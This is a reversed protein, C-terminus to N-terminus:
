SFAAFFPVGINDKALGLAIDNLDHMATRAEKIKDNAKPMDGLEAEILYAERLAALATKIADVAPKVRKDTPDGVSIPRLYLEEQDAYPALFRKVDRFKQYHQMGDSDIRVALQFLGEPYPDKSMRLLGVLKVYETDLHGEPREVEVFEALVGQTARRLMRPRVVENPDDKHAEAEKVADDLNPEVFDYADTCHADAVKGGPLNLTKTADLCPEYPGLGKDPFAKHVLWLTQNVWQLHTMESLAVSLILQRAARLDERLGPWAREQEATVEDPTRLSFYAYLYEMALTLEMGALQKSLDEVMHEVTEYQTLSLLEATSPTEKVEQGQLVFDLQQWHLNIEYPDYRDPRAKPLTTQASVDKLPDHRRRMWDIFTVAQASDDKDTRNALMNQPDDVEGLVVDPHNSAWYHCACDRFDHTWPSCMSSTLEGPHYVPDIMGEENLFRRRQGTLVVPVGTPSGDGARQTLGITLPKDPEILRIIWWVTEGEYPTLGAANQYLAYDYMMIRKGDQEVFHLYWTGGGLASGEPGAFQKKLDVVWAPGDPTFHDAIIPDGAPDAYVLRAGQNGDPGAPTVGLFEFVLGPFFRVDLQRLDFELGPFCNGVGSDMLTSVPNGLVPETYVPNSDVDREVALNMQFPSADNKDKM